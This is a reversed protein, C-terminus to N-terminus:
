RHQKSLNLNKELNFSFFLPSNKTIKTKNLENLNLTTNRVKFNEIHSSNVYFYEDKTISRHEIPKICSKLKLTNSFFNSSFNEKLSSSVNNYSTLTLSSQTNTLIKSLISTNSNITKTNKNSFLENVTLKTNPSQFPQINHQLEVSEILNNTFLNTLKYFLKSLTTYLIYM